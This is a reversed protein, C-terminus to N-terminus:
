FIKYKTNNKSYDSLHKLISYKLDRFPGVTSDSHSVFTVGCTTFRSGRNYNSEMGHAAIARQKSVSGFPTIIPGHYLPLGSPLLMTFERLTTTIAVSNVTKFRKREFVGCTRRTEEYLEEGTTHPSKTCDVLLSCCAPQGRSM